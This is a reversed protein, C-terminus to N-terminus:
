RLNMHAVSLHLLQLLESQTRDGGLAFSKRGAETDLGYILGV